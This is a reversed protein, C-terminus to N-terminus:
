LFFIMLFILLLILFILYKTLVDIIFFTEQLNLNINFIYNYNYTDEYSNIFQHRESKNCFPFVFNKSYRFYTFYNLISGAVHETLYLTNPNSLDLSRSSLWKINGFFDSYIDKSDEILINNTYNPSIDNLILINYDTSLNTLLYLEEVELLKGQLSLINSNIGSFLLKTNIDYKNLIVKQISKEEFFTFDDINKFNKPSQSGLTVLLSTKIFNFFINLIRFTIPNYHSNYLEINLNNLIFSYISFIFNYWTTFCLMLYFIFSNGNDNLVNFKSPKIFYIHDILICYLMWYTFVLIWVLFLCVEDHFFILNTFFVCGPEVFYFLIGLDNICVLNIGFYYFIFPNIISLILASFM